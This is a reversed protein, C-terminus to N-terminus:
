VTAVKGCSASEISVIEACLAEARAITDALTNLNQM